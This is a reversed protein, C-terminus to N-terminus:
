SLVLPPSRSYKATREEATCHNCPHESLLLENVYIHM